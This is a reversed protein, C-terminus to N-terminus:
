SLYAVEMNLHNRVTALAREVISADDKGSLMEPALLSKLM